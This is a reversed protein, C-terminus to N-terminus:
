PNQRFLMTDSTLLASVMSYFSGGEKVSPTKNDYAQEMKALTCADARTEDRGAFYRFTQRVFCRKVHNSDALKRSLEVASNVPGNLGPDPMDVLTSRGNPPTGDHDAIRVFGAHNYVEFPYGLPNMLKHCGICESGPKETAEAVRVRATKNPDSPGVMAAVKVQSLPPVYQCLLSEAIWKGRRILSPDDEFNGGHAALWGPHTLFGARESAPLTVWRGDPINPINTTINYPQQTASTAKFGGQGDLWTAAVYFQQTTLLGHLVQSDGAVVRAIADDFQQVMTAEKAGGGGYFGTQLQRFSVTTPSFVDKGPFQSTKGPQDKFVEPFNGYGLWERFFGAVKAALWYEGRRTQFAVGGLDNRELDRGGAYKRFIADITAVNQISGDKAAAAIDAFEGGLSAKSQRTDTYEVGNVKASKYKQGPAGPGRNDIAFALMQAVEWNNMLTRGTGTGLETRFLAGSTLWAATVVRSVTQNRTQGPESRLATKTFEVLKAVEANGPERFLVNHTLLERVFYNVCTDNPKADTLICQLATNAKARASLNLFTEKGLREGALSSDLFLDLVGEDMTEDSAYTSYPDGANAQLPNLRAWAPQNANSESAVSYTFEEAAIRKLRGPSSGLTGAKCDFLEDQPILNPSPRETEGPPPPPQACAPM